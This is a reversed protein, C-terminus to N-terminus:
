FIYLWQRTCLILHNRLDLVSITLM